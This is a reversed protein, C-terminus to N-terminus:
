RGIKSWEQAFRKIKAQEEHLTRIRIEKLRSANPISYHSNERLSPFQTDVQAIFEDIKKLFFSKAYLALYQPISNLGLKERHQFWEVHDNLTIRELEYVFLVIALLDAASKKPNKQAIERFYESPLQRM